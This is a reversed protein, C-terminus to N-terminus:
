RRRTGSFFIVPTLILALSFYSNEVRHYFQKFFMFIQDLTRCSVGELNNKVVAALYHVEIVNVSQLPDSSDMTKSLIGIVRWAIDSWPGCGAYCSLKNTNLSKFFDFVKPRNWCNEQYLSTYHFLVSQVYYEPCSTMCATAVARTRSCLWKAVIKNVWLFCCIEFYKCGEDIFVWYFTDNVLQLNLQWTSIQKLRLSFQIHANFRFEFKFDPLFIFNWHLQKM